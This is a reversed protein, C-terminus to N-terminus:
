LKLFGKGRVNTVDAYAVYGAGAGSYNSIFPAIRKRISDATVDAYEKNGMKM